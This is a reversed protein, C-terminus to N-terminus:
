KCEAKSEAWMSLPVRGDHYTQTHIIWCGKGGRGESGLNHESVRRTVTSLAPSPLWDIALSSLSMPVIWRLWLLVKDFEGPSPLIALVKLGECGVILM